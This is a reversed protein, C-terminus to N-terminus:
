KKRGIWCYGKALGPEGGSRAKALWHCKLWTPGAAVARVYHTEGSGEVEVGTTHGDELAIGPPPTFVYVISNADAGTTEWLELLPTRCQERDCVLRFDLVTVDVVREAFVHSSWVLILLAGTVLPRCPLSIVSTARKM